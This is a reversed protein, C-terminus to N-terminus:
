LGFLNWCIGVFELNMCIKFFIVAWTPVYMTGVCFINYTLIKGWLRGKYNYICVKFSTVAWTCVYYVFTAIPTICIDTNADPRLFLKLNFRESDFKWMKELTIMLCLLSTQIYPNWSSERKWRDNYFTGWNAMGSGGGYEFVWTHSLSSFILSPVSKIFDWRTIVLKGAIGTDCKSKVRHNFEVPLNCVFSAVCSKHTRLHLEHTGVDASPVRMNEFPRRVRRTGFNTWTM